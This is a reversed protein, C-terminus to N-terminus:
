QVLHIKISKFTITIPNTFAGRGGRIVIWDKNENYNRITGKVEHIEGATAGEGSGNNIEDLTLDKVVTSNWDDNRALNAIMFNFQNDSNEQAPNAFSYEIEWRFQTENDDSAQNMLPRLETPTNFYLFSPAAHFTATVSGDANRTQNQAAPTRVVTGGPNGGSVTTQKGMTSLDVTFTKPHFYMGYYATLTVNSTIPTRETYIIGGATGNHSWRFFKYFRNEDPDPACGMDTPFQKVWDDVSDGEYVEFTTDNIGPNADQHIAPVKLTVTYKTKPSWDATVTIDETVVTTKTFPDTDEDQWGEFWSGQKRPDVPFLPGLPKGVVVLVKTEAPIGGDPASFTVTVRQTTDVDPKWGWKATLTINANIVTGETFKDFGNYWGLFEDTGKTPTTLEGLTQGKTLVVPDPAPTGGDADFTVTVDEPPLETLCATLLVTLALVVSVVSVAVAIKNKM